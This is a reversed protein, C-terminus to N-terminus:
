DDSWVKGIWRQEALERGKLVAGGESELELLVIQGRGTAVSQGCAEPVPSLVPGLVAGPPAPRDDCVPPLAALWVRFTAGDLVSFAGPYPRTQARVFDYLVRSSVSWNIRGDAPRRRPLLPAGDHIQPTGPREGRLLLPLLALLMARNTEAVKRYLTACTDYPTIPFEAQDIVDGADVGEALWMLTNGTTREGNILAWNIPASGRNRPLLSAHAGICGLKAARLAPPRLIQHWGIVFLVDPALQELLAVSEPANIDKVRHLPVGFRACLPAYDAVGSRKAAAEAALTVVGAIPAGQELLAELAPVGEAHFGIWAMRMATM